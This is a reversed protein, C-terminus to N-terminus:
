TATASSKGNFPDGTSKCANTFLGPADHPKEGPSWPVDAPCEGDAGAIASDPRWRSDSTVGAAQLTLSSRGAQRRSCRAPRRRWGVRHGRQPKRRNGPHRLAAQLFEGDAFLLRPKSKIVARFRKSRVSLFAVLYQLGCLLALALLGELLAVDKSLLVTALTSGLAVTVILDFANMKSLTRKGTVRILAVLGFYALTGIVAIRGLDAWGDFFL